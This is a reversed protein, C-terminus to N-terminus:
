WSVGDLREANEALWVAVCLMKGYECVYTAFVVPLYITASGPVPFLRRGLVFAEEKRHCLRGGPLSFVDEEEGSLIRRSVLLYTGSACM